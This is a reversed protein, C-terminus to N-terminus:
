CSVVGRALLTANVGLSWLCYPRGVVQDAMRSSAGRLYAARRNWGSARRAAIPVHRFSSKQAFRRSSRKSTPPAVNQPQAAVAQTTTSLSQANVQLVFLNGSMPQTDSM